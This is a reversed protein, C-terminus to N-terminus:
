LYLWVNTSNPDKKAYIIRENKWFEMPKVRNRSSHRLISIKRPDDNEDKIVNSMRKHRKQESKRTESGPEVAVENMEIYQLSETDQYQFETNFPVPGETM